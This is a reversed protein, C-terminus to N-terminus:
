AVKEIQDARIEVERESGFFPVVVRLSETKVAAILAEISRFPGSTITGRDGPQWGAKKLDRAMRQVIAMDADTMRVPPENGFQVPAHVHDLELVDRWCIDEGAAGQVFVYRPMLAREQEVMVPQGQKGRSRKTHIQTPVITKLGLGKKIESAVRLERQPAVMLVRWISSDM